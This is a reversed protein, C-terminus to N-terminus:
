LRQLELRSKGIARRFGDLRLWLEPIPDSLHCRWGVETAFSWREPRLRGHLLARVLPRISLGPDRCPGSVPAFLRGVDEGRGLAIGLAPFNVGSWVSHRLSAWFRPNAEIMLLENTREDIRMDFHVVGHYGCAAILASGLELVRPHHLFEVVEPLERPRQQITWAVVRGHDALVSLDIDRGPIFDQVLCPWGFRAGYDDVFSSLAERSDIRHVGVGGEGRVPKIMLPFELPETRAQEASELLRTKPTSFGLKHLLLYFEWKDNLREILEPESLPFVGVGKLERRGEALLRIAPFDAPVVWDVRHDRCYTSIGELLSRDHRRLGESGCLASAQCHRSLRPLRHTGPAMVSVRHGATALSVTVWRSFFDDDALVLIKM